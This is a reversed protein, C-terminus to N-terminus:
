VMLHSVMRVEKCDEVVPQKLHITLRCMIRILVAVNGVLLTMLAEALWRAVRKAQRITPQCAVASRPRPLSRLSPPQNTPLAAAYNLLHITRTQILNNM